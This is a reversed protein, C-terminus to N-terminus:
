HGRKCKGYSGFPQDSGAFGRGQATAGAPKGLRMDQELSVGKKMGGLVGNSRVQPDENQYEQEESRAGLWGM